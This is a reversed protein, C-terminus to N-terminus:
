SAPQLQKVIGAEELPRAHSDKGSMNERFDKSALGFACFQRHELCRDCLERDAPLGCQRAAHLANGRSLNFGHFIVHASFQLRGVPRRARDAELSVVYGREGARTTLPPM